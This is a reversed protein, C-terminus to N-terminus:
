YNRKQTCRPQALLKARKVAAFICIIKLYVFLLEIIKLVGPVPERSHLLIVPVPKQNGLDNLCVFLPLADSRGRKVVM